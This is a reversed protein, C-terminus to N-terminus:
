KKLEETMYKAPSLGHTKKFARSFNYPTSYGLEESIYRVSKGKKLLTVAYDMKKSNLYNGPTIGYCKRFTKCIHGYDYGFHSSLEDLSFINLFHADIYNTVSPIIDYASQMDIEASPIGTRALKVLISIILSDLYNVSFPADKSVFEAVVATMLESIGDMKYVRENGFVNKIACLLEAAVGEKVNVAITQFRCGRNSSLEHLDNKYSLHVENKNIKKEEGDISCILGNTLSYTIELDCSQKHPPICFRGGYYSDVTQVIFFNQTELISHFYGTEFDRDENKYIISNENRYINSM